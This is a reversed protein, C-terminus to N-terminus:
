KYAREFSVTVCYRIFSLQTIKKKFTFIGQVDDDDELSSYESESSNAKDETENPKEKDTAQSPLPELKAITKGMATPSPTSPSLRAAQQKAKSILKQKRLISFPRTIHRQNTARNLYVNSHITQKRSTGVKPPSLSKGRTTSVHTTDPAANCHSQIDDCGNTYLQFKM